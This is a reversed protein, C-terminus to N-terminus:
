FVGLRATEEHETKFDKATCVIVGIRATRHEDRLAKLVEIGHMKPMMIDLVVLDPVSQRARALCEEGDSVTEVAYGASELAQAMKFAIVRVDEAILIRGKAPSPNSM